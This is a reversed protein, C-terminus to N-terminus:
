SQRATTVLPTFGVNGAGSIRRVRLDYKFFDGFDIDDHTATITIIQGGSVTGSTALSTSTGPNYIEIELTSSSTAYTAVEVQIKPHQRYGSTTYHSVFTASTTVDPPTTLEATRITRYELWPRAVGNGSQADDSLVINGQRDWISVFSSGYTWFALSGDARRISVGEVTDGGLEHQGIVVADANNSYKSIFKAGPQIVLSNFVEVVGNTLNTIGKRVNASTFNNKVERKLRNWETAM